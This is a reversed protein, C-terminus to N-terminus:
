RLYARGVGTFLWEEDVNFYECFLRITKYSPFSTGKEYTGWTSPAVGAIRAMASKTLNNDERVLGLREGFSIGFAEM